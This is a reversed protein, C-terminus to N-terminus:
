KGQFRIAGFGKDSHSTCHSHALTAIGLEKTRGGRGRGCWGRDKPEKWM